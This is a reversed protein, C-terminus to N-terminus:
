FNIKEYDLFAFHTKFLMYNPIESNILLYFGYGAIFISIIALVIKFKHSIKRLMISMHMGIHFGM